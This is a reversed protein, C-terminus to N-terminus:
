HAVGQKLPRLAPEWLSRRNEFESTLQQVHSSSEAAHIHTHSHHHVELKRAIKEEVASKVWDNLSIGSQSASLAAIKHLEPGIRVNFSGKLLKDPAKGVMACTELYDDVSEEFATKLEAMTDGQYTVVDNVYLIKGHLVMDDANFDISGMYGKYEFTKTM